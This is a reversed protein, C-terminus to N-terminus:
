AVVGWRGGPLERPTLDAREPLAYGLAVLCKCCTVQHDAITVNRGTNRAGCATTFTTEYLIEIELHVTM